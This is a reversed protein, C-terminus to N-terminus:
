YPDLMVTLQVQARDPYWYRAVLTGIRATKVYRRHTLKIRRGLIAFAAPHSDRVCFTAIDKRMAGWRLRGSDILLGQLDSSFQYAIEGAQDIGSVARADYLVGYAEVGQEPSDFGPAYANINGTNVTSPDVPMTRVNAVLRYGDIQTWSRSVNPLTILDEIATQQLGAFSGSVIQANTVDYDYLSAGVEDPFRLVTEQGNPDHSAIWNFEACMQAIIDASNRREAVLGSISQEPLAEWQTYNLGDPDNLDRVFINAAAENAYEIPDGESKGLVTLDYQGLNRGSAVSVATSGLSIDGISSALWMEREIAYGPTTATTGQEVLIDYTGDPWSSIDSFVITSATFSTIQGWYGSRFFYAYTSQVGNSGDSDAVQQSHIKIGPAGFPTALFTAPPVTGTNNTVTNSGSKTINIAVCSGYTVSGDFANSILGYTLKKIGCLPTSPSIKIGDKRFNLRSGDSALSPSFANANQRDLRMEASFIPGIEKTEFFDEAIYLAFPHPNGGGLLNAFNASGLVYLETAGNAMLIPYQTETACSVEYYRHYGSFAQFREHAVHCTKNTGSVTIGDGLYARGFRSNEGIKQIQTIKDGNFFESSVDATFISGVQLSDTAIPEGSKEDSVQASSGQDSVAFRALRDIRVVKFVSSIDPITDWPISVEISGGYFYSPTSILTNWAIFGTFLEIKRRQGAGTGAVVDVYVDLNPVFKGGAGVSYDSLLVEMWTGNAWSSSLSHSYRDIAAYLIASTSSAVTYAGGLNGEFTGYFLRTNPSDIYISSSVLIRQGNLAIDGSQLTPPSMREVAGWIIPVPKGESDQSITPNTVSTLVQEPIEKHRRASLSEAKISVEAGDWPFAVVTGTWRADFTAGSMTGVEITANQLSAGAAMFDSMGNASIVIGVDELMAYNGHQSVDVKEGIPDVRILYGPIWESVSTGGTLKAIGSAWIGGTYTPEPSASSLTIRVAYEM